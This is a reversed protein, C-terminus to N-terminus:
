FFIWTGFGALLVISFVGLLIKGFRKNGLIFAIGIKVFTNSAIALLISNTAVLNSIVGSKSMSAMSLTIADLDAFGSFVSTIYIGTHGFTLQAIRSILLVLLFFGGFLMAPGIAFPQKFEIKKLSNKKSEKKKFFIFAIFLDLFFVVILPLFLNKLLTNNVLSVEFFVRLIMVSMAIITALVFPYIRRRNRKSQGAMSLTVATSSVLGGIFGLLTYSKKQDIIKVLFYGFFSIGAVLIVMLWIYYFNFVDLQGLFTSSIGFNSLFTGLGPLDLPSFNKNPLIPLIVLSILSFKIVGLIEKKDMRKVIGHFKEKFALFVTILIGFIVAIQLYGTTSMAGVVYSMMAAIETVVTTRKFKMFTLVYSIVTLLIVGGFGIMVPLSDFNKGLIGLIAGFFTILVFTRFGAFRQIRKKQQSFERQLGILAGLFIAVLLNFIEM